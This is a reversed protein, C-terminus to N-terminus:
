ANGPAVVHCTRSILHGGDHAAPRAPSSIDETSQSDQGNHGGAQHAWAPITPAPSETALWEPSIPGRFDRRSAAAPTEAEATSPADQTASCDSNSHPGLSSTEPSCPAQQAFPSSASLQADLTGRAPMELWSPEGQAVSGHLQADPSVLLCSSSAALGLSHQLAPELGTHYPRSSTGSLSAGPEASSQPPTSSTHAPRAAPEADPKPSVSSVLPLSAGPEADPQPPMSSKVAHSPVPEGDIQPQMSSTLPCGASPAHSLLQTGDAPATAPAELVTIPAPELLSQLVLRQISCKARNVQAAVTPRM